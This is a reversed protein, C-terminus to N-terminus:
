NGHKIVEMKIWISRLINRGPHWTVIIKKKKRISCLDYHKNISWLELGRGLDREKSELRHRNKM